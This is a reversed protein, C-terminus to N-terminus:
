NEDKTKDSKQGEELLLTVPIYEVKSNIVM